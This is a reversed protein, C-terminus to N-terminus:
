MPLKIRSPRKKTEGIEEHFHYRIRGSVVPLEGCLAKVLTSKGSGNTGLVAWHQDSRIEWTTGEFFIKGFFSLSVDELSVYPYAKNSKKM